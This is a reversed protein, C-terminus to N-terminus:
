RSTPFAIPSRNAPASMTAASTPFRLEFNPLVLLTKGSGAFRLKCEIPPGFFGPGPDPIVDHIVRAGSSAAWCNVVLDGSIQFFGAVFQGDDSLVFNPHLWSRPIGDYKLVARRTGKEADVIVIRRGDAGVVTRSDASFSYRPQCRPVEGHLSDNAVDWLILKSNREDWATALRGDPSLVSDELVPMSLNTVGRTALDVKIMRAAGDTTVAFLWIRGDASAGASIQRDMRPILEVVSKGSSLDVLNLAHTVKKDDGVSPLPREGLGLGFAPSFGIFESDKTLSITQQRVPLWGGCGRM